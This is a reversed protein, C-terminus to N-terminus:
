ARTRWASDVGSLVREVRFIADPANGALMSKRAAVLEDADLKLDTVKDELGCVQAELEEIRQRLASIEGDKEKIAEQLGETDLKQDLKEAVEILRDIAASIQSVNRADKARAATKAM